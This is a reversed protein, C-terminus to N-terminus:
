KEATRGALVTELFSEHIAFAPHGDVVLRYARAWVVDGSPEDTVLPAQQVGLESRALPEKHLHAGEDLLVRGIPVDTHELRWRAADTLRSPVFLTTARVYPRATARGRLIASRLTLPDGTRVGLANDAQALVAVQEQVDAAMAEGTLDELVETVTRPGEFLEM